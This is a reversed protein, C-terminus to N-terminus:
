TPKIHQLVRVPIRRPAQGAQEQDKLSVDVELVGQDYSAQIHEEDAGAPLTVHRAFVGYRFESHHRGDADHRDAKITLIGKAVTVEVDKEPNVGPLEARLVYRGDKIYDEVRLPHAMPLRFPLLPSGLWDFIDLFPTRSSMRTLASM